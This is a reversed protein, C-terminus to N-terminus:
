SEMRLIDSPGYSPSLWYGWDSIRYKEPLLGLYMLGGRVMSHIWNQVWGQQWRRHDTAIVQLEPLFHISYGKRRLRWGLESDETCPLEPDFGGAKLCVEKRILLNSGSVAPIGVADLWSQGRSFWRYTNQYDDLSIKPGYVADINDFSLFVIQQFYEPPFAIDADTFLVWETQARELGSQRAQAITGGQFIVTTPNLAHNFLIEATGDQSADVAILRVGIPLSGLFLRINREENRTPVVITLEELLM